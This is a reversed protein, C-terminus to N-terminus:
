SPPFRLLIFGLVFTMIISIFSMAHFYGYRIKAEAMLEAKYDVGADGSAGAVSSICRILIASIFLNVVIEAMVFSSGIGKTDYSTYAFLLVALMISIYSILISVRAQVTDILERAYNVIDDESEAIRDIRTSISRFNVFISCIFKAIIDFLKYFSDVM